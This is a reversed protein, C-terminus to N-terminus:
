AATGSGNDAHATITPAVPAAITLLVFGVFVRAVGRSAFLSM